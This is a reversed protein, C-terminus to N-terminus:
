RLVERIFHIEEGINLMGNLDPCKNTFSFTDRISIFSRHIALSVALGLYNCQSALHCDALTKHVYLM